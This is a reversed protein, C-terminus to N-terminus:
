NKNLEWSHKAGNAKLINFVQKYEDAKDTNIPYINRIHKEQEFIFDLITKNDMPDLFNLDLQYKRAFEIILGSFGSDISFKTINHDTFASTSYNYCRFKQKNENWMLQIKVRATELIEKEVDACSTEWLDEQYSFSMKSKPNRPEFRQYMDNCLRSIMDKSPMACKYEQEVGDESYFKWTGSTPIKTSSYEGSAALKGNDYNIKWSGYKEGNIYNGSTKVRGNEYYEEWVGEKLNNKLNGTEKLITTNSYYKKEIQAYNILYSLLLLISIPMKM